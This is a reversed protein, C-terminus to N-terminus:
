KNNGDTTPGAHLLRVREAKEMGMALQKAVDDGIFINNQTRQDPKNGTLKGAAELYRLSRDFVQLPAQCFLEDNTLVFEIRKLAAVALLTQDKESKAIYVERTKEMLHSALEKGKSSNIINSVLAETYDVEIAIERNSKGACYLTIIQDHVPRWNKPEWKPNKRLSGKTSGPPRGRKEKEQVNDEVKLIKTILESM